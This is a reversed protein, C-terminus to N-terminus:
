EHKTNLSKQKEKKLEESGFRFLFQFNDGTRHNKKM